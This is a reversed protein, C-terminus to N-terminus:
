TSDKSNKCCESQSINKESPTHSPMGKKNKMRNELIIKLIITRLKGIANAFVFRQSHGRLELPLQFCAFHTRFCSRLLILQNISSLLLLSSSTLAGQVCRHTLPCAVSSQRCFKPLSQCVGVFKPLSLWRRGPCHVHPPASFCAAALILCNRVRHPMYAICASLPKKIKM